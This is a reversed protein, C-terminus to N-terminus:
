GCPPVCELFPKLEENDSAKTWACITTVRGQQMRFPRVILNERYSRSAEEPFITIGMGASVLSFMASSTPAELAIVPTVGAHDFETFITRRYMSWAAQGGMILKQNEFHRPELVKHKSLPHGKPMVVVMEEERLLRTSIGPASFPGLMFAIDIKGELIVQRQDATPLGFLEIRVDPRMANFQKLILALFGHTVFDMYAIKLQGVRGHITDRMIQETREVQQLLQRAEVLLKKGAPTLRVNRTDRDFLKAGIKEEFRKITRTLAPQVVSLRAAATGFNLEDAVTVFCKLQRLDLM